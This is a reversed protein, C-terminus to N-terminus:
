LNFPNFLIAEVSFANTAFSSDAADDKLAVGLVANTDNEDNAMNQACGVNSADLVLYSGQTVNGDTHVTAVGSVQVFLKMLLLVM